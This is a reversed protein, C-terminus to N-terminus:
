PAGRRIWRRCFGGLIVAAGLFVALELERIPWYHGPPQCTV